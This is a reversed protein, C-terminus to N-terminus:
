EDNDGCMALIDLISASIRDQKDNAITTSRNEYMDNILKLQLLKALKLMKNSKKYGEGVCSDIYIESIQILEMLYNDEDNYDIKLYERVQKLDVIKM